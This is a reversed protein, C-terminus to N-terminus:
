SALNFVSACDQRGAKTEQSLDRIVKLKVRIKLGECNEKM